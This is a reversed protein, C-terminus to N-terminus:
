DVKKMDKGCCCRPLHTGGGGEAAGRTVQIECACREDQCRYIEGKRLAM